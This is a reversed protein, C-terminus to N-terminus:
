SNQRRVNNVRMWRHLSGGPATHLQEVVVCGPPESAGYHGAWRRSHVGARCGCRPPRSCSRGPPRSSPWRGASLRSTTAGRGRRPGRRARPGATAEGCSAAGCAPEDRAGPRPPPWDLFSPGARGPGITPSAARGGVLDEEARHDTADLGVVGVLEDV